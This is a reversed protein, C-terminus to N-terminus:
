NANYLGSVVEFGCAREKRVARERGDAAIRRAAWNFHFARLVAGRRGSAIVFVAALACAWRLGGALPGPAPLGSTVVCDGFAVLGAKM